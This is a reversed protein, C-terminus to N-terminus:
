NLQYGLLNALSRAALMMQSSGLHTLLVAIWAGWDSKLFKFYKTVLAFLAIWMLWCFMWLMPVLFAQEWSSPPIPLSPEMWRLLERLFYEHFFYLHFFIASILVSGAIWTNRSIKWTPFFVNQFLFEAMYTSGRQWLELPSKALIMFYTADKTEYGFARLFGTVTGLGASVFLLFSLYHWLSASINQGSPLLPLVYFLAVITVESLFLRIFGSTRLVRLRHKDKTLALSRPWPLPFFLQVPNLTVITSVAGTSLSTAFFYIALIELHMTWFLRFLNYDKSAAADAGLGWILIAFSVLVAGASMLRHLTSPRSRMLVFANFALFVVPALAYPRYIHLIACPIVWTALALLPFLYSNFRTPILLSLVFGAFLVIGGWYRDQIIFFRSWGPMQTNWLPYTAILLICGIAIGIWLTLKNDAGRTSLRAEFNLIKAELEVPSM